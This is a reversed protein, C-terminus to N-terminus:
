RLRRREGRTFALVKAMSARIWASECDNVGYTLVVDERDDGAPVLGMVFQITECVVDSHLFTRPKRLASLCFPPSQAVKRYPPEAEFLLFLHLYTSGYRTREERDQPVYSLNMYDGWGRHHWRNPTWDTHIHGVTLMLNDDPLLIPNINNHVEFGLVELHKAPKAQYDLSGLLVAMGPVPYDGNPTLPGKDFVPLPWRLTAVDMGPEALWRLVHVHVEQSSAAGVRLGGSENKTTTFWLGMNRSLQSNRTTRRRVAVVKPQQRPQQPQRLQLEILFLRTQFPWGGQDAAVISEEPGMQLRMDFGYYGMSDSLEVTTVLAMEADMLMMMTVFDKSHKRVPNTRQKTAQDAGLDACQRTHLGTRMAVLYHPARAFHASGLRAKLRPPLVLITPNFAITSSAEPWTTDGIVRPASGFPLPPVGYLAVPDFYASAHYTGAPSSWPSISWRRTPWAALRPRTLLITLAWLSILLLGCGLQARRRGSM